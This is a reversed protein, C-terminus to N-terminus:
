LALSLGARISYQLPSTELYSKDYAGPLPLYVGTSVSLTADSLLRANASLDEEIGILGAGKGPLIGAESVPGVGNKVFFLTKSAAQVSLLGIRITPFPRYSVGVEAQTINGPLPSFVLGSSGRTIPTFQTADGETNGDTASSADPDGSGFVARFSGTFSPNFIMRAQVGFSFARVPAYLYRYGTASSDDEVYSLRRGFQCVGYGSYSLTSIPSGAFGASLYSTDAPGGSLSDLVTEYEPILQSEERLDEQSTFAIYADHGAIKPTRISFAAIARPPAFDGNGYSADAANALIPASSSQFGTYGVVARMTLLPYVASLIFGDIRYGFLAGTSDSFPLRGVAFSLQKIGENEIPSGFALSFEPIDIAGISDPYGFSSEGAAYSYSVSGGVKSTFRLNKGLPLVGAVSVSQSGSVSLDPTQALSLSSDLALDLSQAGLASAGVLGVALLILVARKM